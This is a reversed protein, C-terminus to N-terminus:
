RGLKLRMERRNWKNLEHLLKAGITAVEMTAAVVGKTAVAIVTVAEAARTAMDVEM